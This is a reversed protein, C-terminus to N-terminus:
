KARLVYRRKVFYGQQAVRLMALLPMSVCIDQKCCSLFPVAVNVRSARLALHSTTKAIIYASRVNITRMNM